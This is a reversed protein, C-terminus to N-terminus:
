IEVDRWCNDGLIYIVCCHCELKRIESIIIVLSTFLLVIVILNGYRALLQLWPHLYCLLSM